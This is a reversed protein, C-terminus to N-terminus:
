GNFYILHHSPQTWGKPLIAVRRTITETWTQDTQINIFISWKSSLKSKNIRIVELQHSGRLCWGKYLCTQALFTLTLLVLVVELFLWSTKLFDDVPGSGKEARRGPTPRRSTWRTRRSTWRTRRSTRWTRRSTRRTRKRNRATQSDRSRRPGREDDNQDSKGPAMREKLQSTRGQPQFHVHRRGCVDHITEQVGELNQNWLLRWINQWSRQRWPCERSAQLIGVRWSGKGDQQWVQVRAREIQLSLKQGVPWLLMLIDRLLRPPSRHKWGKPLPPLDGQLLGHKESLQDQEESRQEPSM